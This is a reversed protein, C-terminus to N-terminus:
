AHTVPAGVIAARLAAAQSLLDNVAPAEFLADLDAQQARRMASPRAVMHERIRGQAGDEREVAEIRDLCAAENTASREYPVFSTRYRHNVREIVGGMDDVAQSFDVAVLGERLAHAARYFRLYQLLAQRVSLGSYRLCLSTAAARPDRVLLAVPLGRDVARRLMVPSHTHHAVVVGPNALEFSVVAYTNASRPFGEIVVQTHATVRLPRLTPHAAAYMPFLRESRALRSYIAFRAAIV